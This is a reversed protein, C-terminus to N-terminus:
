SVDFYLLKAKLNNFEDNTLDLLNTIDDYTALEPIEAEKDLASLM